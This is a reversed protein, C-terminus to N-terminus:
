MGLHESRRNLRTGLIWLAIIMGMGLASMGIAKHPLGVYLFAAGIYYPLISIAMTWWYDWLSISKLLGIAYNVISSPIPLLRIVLLGMAGRRKVWFDIKELHKSSASQYLLFGGIYRAIVFIVLSGLVAGIWAYLLGALVGFVKMNIILLFETMISFIDLLAMLLIALIIGKWGLTYLFYTIIGHNDIKFFLVTGVFQIMLIVVSLIM